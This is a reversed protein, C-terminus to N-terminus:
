AKYDWESGLHNLAQVRGGRGKDEIMEKSRCYQFSFFKLKCALCKREFGNIRKEKAVPGVFQPVHGWPSPAPRPPNVYSAHPWHQWQMPVHHQPLFHPRDPAVSHGAHQWHQGQVQMQVHHPPLGNAWLVGHQSFVPAAFHGATQIGTNASSSWHGGEAEEEM